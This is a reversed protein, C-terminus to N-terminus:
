YDVTLHLRKILRYCNDYNELGNEQHLLIIGNQIKMFMNYHNDDYIKWIKENGQFPYIFLGHCIQNISYELIVQSYIPYM